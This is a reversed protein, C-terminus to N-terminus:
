GFWHLFHLGHGSFTIGMETFPISLGDSVLAIYSDLKSTDIDDIDFPIVNQSKFLRPAKYCDALTYHLNYREDEPILELYSKHNEFLDAISKPQCEEFIVHKVDWAEKTKNFYERYGLVQIM